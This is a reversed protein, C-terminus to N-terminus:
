DVRWSERRYQRRVLKDFADKDIDFSEGPPDLGCTRLEGWSRVGKSERTWVPFSPSGDLTSQLLAKSGQLSRILDSLESRLSRSCSYSQKRYFWGMTCNLLAEDNVDGEGNVVEYTGQAYKRCYNSVAKFTRLAQVDIHSHWAGQDALEEKEHIRYRYATEKGKPDEGDKRETLEPFVSFKTEKFLLVMHLHALAFAEGKRGQKKGPFAQVFKLVDIKGYRNRLNTIWLNFEGEINRWAEDLSCRKSDYTLTVWLLSTSVKKNVTFDAGSFLEFGKQKLRELFALKKDIRRNFVDNGRKSCKVGVRVTEGTERNTGM